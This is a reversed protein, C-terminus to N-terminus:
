SGGGPPLAAAFTAALARAAVRVFPWRPKALATSVFARSPCASGCAGSRGFLPRRAVCAARALASLSAAPEIRAKDFMNPSSGGDCLGARDGAAAAPVVFAETVRLRGLAPRRPRLRGAHGQSGRPSKCSTAQIRPRLVSSDEVLQEISASGFPCIDAHARLWLPLEVCPKQAVLPAKIRLLVLQLNSVWLAAARIGGGACHVGWM